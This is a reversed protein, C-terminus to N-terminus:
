GYKQDMHGFNVNIDSKMGSVEQYVNKLYKIAADARELMEIEPRGRVITFNKFERTSDRFEKRYVNAEILGKRIQIREIFKEIKEKPGECIILASGDNENKITGVIGLEDAMEKVTDRYGVKQVKGKVSIEARVMEM